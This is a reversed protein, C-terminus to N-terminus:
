ATILSNQKKVSEAANLLAAREEADLALEIIEEVGKKGLRCPLGLCLGKIGYEGSLYVSVPLIRKEDNAIAKALEAIAAAPAFYASNSGSSAVIESGRNVTKEIIAKIKERNLQAQLPKGNAKIFRSLPSMEKGHSGIVCPEIEEISTNLEEAILNALRSADLSLGMGLVRSPAFGTVKLVLYTMADLPNTVVIIIAQPCLRKIERSLGGVIQSNKQGLDERSMGPGRSIGATIIVIDSDAILNIDTSGRIRSNKKLIFRADSLDLSKAYALGPAIDILIIEAALFSSLQM